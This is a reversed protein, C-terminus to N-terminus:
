NTTLYNGGARLILDQTKEGSLIINTWKQYIRRCSSFKGVLGIGNVIQRQQWVAAKQSNVLYTPFAM